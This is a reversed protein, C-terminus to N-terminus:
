KIEFECGCYEVTEASTVEFRSKDSYLCGKLLIQYKGVPLEGYEAAWDVTGSFSHGSSLDQEQFARRNEGVEIDHWMGDMQIQLQYDGSLKFSLTSKNTVTLEGGFASVEEGVFSVSIEPSVNYQNERGIMWPYGSFERFMYKRTQVGQDKGFMGSKQQNLSLTIYEPMKKARIYYVCCAHYTYKKWPSKGYFHFAVPIQSYTFELEKGYFHSGDEVWIYFHNKFDMNPDVSQVCDEPFFACFDAEQFVADEEWDMCTVVVYCETNVKSNGFIWSSVRYRPFEELFLQTDCSEENLINIEGRAKLPEVGELYKKLFLSTPERFAAEDYYYDSFGIGHLFDEAELVEDQNVTIKEYPNKLIPLIAYSDALYKWMVLCLLLMPLTWANLFVHKDVTKRAKKTLLLYVFILPQVLMCLVLYLYRLRSTYSIRKFDQFMWCGLMFSIFFYM